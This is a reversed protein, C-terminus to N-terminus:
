QNMFNYADTFGAGSFVATDWMEVLIKSSKKFVDVVVENEEQDYPTYAVWGRSYCHKIFKVPTKPMSRSAVEITSEFGSSESETCTSSKEIFNVRAGYTTRDIFATMGLSDTRYVREQKKWDKYNAAGLSMDFSRQKPQNKQQEGLLGNAFIFAVVIGLFVFFKFLSYAVPDKQHTSQCAKMMDGCNLCHSAEPSVKEGCKPCYNFGYSM